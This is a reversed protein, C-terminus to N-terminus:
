VSDKPAARRGRKRNRTRQFERIEEALYIHGSKLKAVPQPAGQAQLLKWAQASGVDLLTQLEQSGVLEPFTSRDPKNGRFHYQPHCCEFGDCTCPETHNGFDCCPCCDALENDPDATM